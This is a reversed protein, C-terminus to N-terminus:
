SARHDLYTPLNSCKYICVKRAISRVANTCIRHEVQGSSRMLWHPLFPALVIQYTYNGTRVKADVGVLLVLLILVSVTFQYQGEGQQSAPRTPAVPCCLTTHRPRTFSPCTM